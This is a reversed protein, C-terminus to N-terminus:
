ERPESTGHKLSDKIQIFFVVVLEVFLVGSFFLWAGTIVYFHIGELWLRREQSAPVWEIVHHGLALMVMLILFRATDAVLVIFTPRIVQWVEGIWLSSLFEHWTAM